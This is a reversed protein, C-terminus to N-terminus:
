LKFKNVEKTLINSCEQLRDVEESLIRMSLLQEKSISSIEQTSATTQESAASTNQIIDLIADKNGIMTKNYNVIKNIIESLNFLESSLKNFIDETEVVAQNNENVVAINEEVSVVANNSKEQIANIKSRIENTFKSTEEALKKVEEAVVTFGRGSEGARAAEISANLALLNTQNAIENITDVISSIEKSNSDVDMVISKINNSIERNKESCSSLNNMVGIGQESLTRTYNIKDFTVITEDSINDIENSLDNIQSVEEQIDESQKQSSSAIESIANSIGDLSNISIETTDVLKNSFDNIENSTNQISAVMRGLVIRMNLISNSIKGVENEKLAYKNLLKNETLDLNSIDDIIGMLDKLPKLIKNLLIVLLITLLILSIVTITIQVKAFDNIVSSIGSIPIGIDLSGYLEGNVNIPVMIDYAWIKQVDAYFKRATTKGQQVANVTYDDDYVKGIKQEDSHAVAKNNKDVVVIYTINDLKAKKDVIEQLKEIPNDENQIIYEALSNMENAVEISKDLLVDTMSNKINFISIITTLSFIVLLSVLIVGTLLSKISKKIVRNNEM